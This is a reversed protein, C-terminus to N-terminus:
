AYMALFWMLTFMKNLASCTLMSKMELARVAQSGEVEHLWFISVEFAEKYLLPFYLCFYIITSYYEVGTTNNVNILVFYLQPIRM